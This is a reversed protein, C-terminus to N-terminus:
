LMLKLPPHLSQIFFILSHVLDDGGEKEEGKHCGMCTGTHNGKVELPMILPQHEAEMAEWCSNKCAKLHKNITSLPHKDTSGLYGKRTAKNTDPLRSTGLLM